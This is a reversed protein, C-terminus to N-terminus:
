KQPPPVAGIQQMLGLMDISSWSEAIKGGAIRNVVIVDVAVQKGTPAIGQFEGNHTGTVITRDVVKDGEAIQDQSTIKLDPFASRFQSAFQKMGEPGKTEEPPGHDIFDKDYVEDAVDLNGQNFIEEEVRISLAKNEEISV